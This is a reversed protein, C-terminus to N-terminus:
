FYYHVAVAPGGSVTNLRTTSGMDVNLGWETSIGLNELGYLFFEAGLAPQLRVAQDAGTSTFGTGAAAYLTMNDEAVLGYLVRVGGFWGDYTTAASPSNMVSAGATLEVALRITPSRTPLHYRVSLSSVSAFQNSYGIGVRERLDMAEASSSLLLSGTLL